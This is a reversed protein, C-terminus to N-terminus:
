NGRERFIAGLTIVGKSFTCSWSSTIFLRLKQQPKTGRLSKIFSRSLLVATWDISIGVLSNFTESFKIQVSNKEVLKLLQKVSPLKASSYLFSPLAFPDFWLVIIIRDYWNVSM